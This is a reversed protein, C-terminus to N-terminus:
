AWPSDQEYAWAARLELRRGIVGPGPSILHAQPEPHFRFDGVRHFRGKFIPANPASHARDM